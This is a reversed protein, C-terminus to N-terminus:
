IHILSLYDYNGLDGRGAIVGAYSFLKRHSLLSGVIYSSEVDWARPSLFRTILQYRGDIDHWAGIAMELQLHLDVLNTFNPVRTKFKVLQHEWYRAQTRAVSCLGHAPPLTSAPFAAHERAAM